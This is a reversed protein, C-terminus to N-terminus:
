KRRLLQVLREQEWEEEGSFIPCDELLDEILWKLEVLQRKCDSATWGDNFPSMAEAACLRIESVASSLGPKRFGM